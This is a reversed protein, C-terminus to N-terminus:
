VKRSADSSVEMETAQTGGKGDTVAVNLPVQPGEFIENIEELTHGKTEPVLFYIAVVLFALIGCFVIYYHWTIAKMAIPNIFQGSILGAYTGIYNVTIARGRLSYPFIEATYALPLPTWAIDYFFYYVFIFILVSNGLAQNHTKAFEANLVTTAILFLRRRGVRDVLLAGGCVAVIWNFIQLMGNILTQHAVDRIGITNLVLTLYYSVVSCGSWQAFFAIGVAILMRRRNPATRMLDVYSNSHNDLTNRQLSENIEAVEFDVLPSNHDGNGHYKTFIQRAKEEQGHAILWRPSEPLWYFFAFQISPMVAQLLSPIRWAWTSQIRFTGFTSWAALVAGLYFFTNYLSTIKARQTPYALETVLIPSPQALFSTSFGLVFRSAIFMPTNQAAAQLAAGIPLLLFGVFMPRRRGYNDGLWTAPFLGIVKSLPYVANMFGLLAGEPKGFTSRWQPLSQLGNMMAGDFGLAAASILPVLLILNLRRIHPIRYWPRPDDPLVALLEAPYQSTSSSGKLAKKFLGM